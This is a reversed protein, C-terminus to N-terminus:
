PSTFPPSLTALIHCIAKLSLSDTLRSCTFLESQRFGFVPRNISVQQHTRDTKNRVDWLTSIMKFNSSISKSWIWQLIFSMTENKHSGPNANSCFLTKKFQRCKLDLCTQTDKLTVSKWMFVSLDVTSLGSHLSLVLNIQQHKWDAPHKNVLRVM